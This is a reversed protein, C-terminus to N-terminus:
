WELLGGNRGHLRVVQSIYEEFQGLGDDAVLKQVRARDLEVYAHVLTAGCEQWARFVSPWVRRSIEASVSDRM